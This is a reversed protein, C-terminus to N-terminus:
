GATRRDVWARDSAPRHSHWDTKGDALVNYHQGPKLSKLRFSQESESLGLRYILVVCSGEIPQYYQLGMWGTPNAGAALADTLHYVDAGHITGRIRKYLSVNDQARKLAEPPWLDLRSSIGTQGNMAIRFMFDWWAPDPTTITAGYGGRRKPNIDGVMWHNCTEPAFEVLAGYAVQPSFRPNVTDSIWAAHTHRAIGLDWRRGGSACNKLIVQPYKKAIDDLWQYCGQLHEHLRTNKADAGTLDFDNDVDINYDFKFWDIQGEQMLRDLVALM